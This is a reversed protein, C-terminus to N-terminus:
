LCRQSMSSNKRQTLCVRLISWKTPRESFATGHAGVDGDGEDDIQQQAQCVGRLGCDCAEEYEGAEHACIQHVESRDVVESWM